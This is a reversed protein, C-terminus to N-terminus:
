ARAFRVTRAGVDASVLRVAIREGVPLADGDCRARVAPRDLLVTGSSNEADIVMATFTEGVRDRLLWAETADVVARDAAHALQDAHQMETPLAPFGDIVWPPVDTGAHVAVCVETGFRDVLRRLPATVHAYPAGIGAHMTEAPVRGNFAVYAAGRLLAAAHEIFAVHTPDTRDLSALVDGPRSHHHWPVGLARAVRRLRALAGNNPAPVTRLIGIGGTLMIQAACMGTLLSVEANYQEVPLPARAVLAWGTGNPEVEQQPIDLDIAHRARALALRLRGVEALLTLPLETRGADLDAQVGAYDFQRRSRVRARGLTVSCVEGTADLGIRWLVAPRIRDPLLSAAGESLVPPHLPVRLDPFYITEGRQHTAADLASRPRVFAAVDAIAYHVLYGSGDREIHLAQDLDRSGAPDITVLAIDTADADPLEVTMAAREADALAAADFDGPVELESRV